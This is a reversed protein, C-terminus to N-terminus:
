GPETVGFPNLPARNRPPTVAVEVPVSGGNLVVKRDLVTEPGAFVVLNHEVAQVTSIVRTPGIASVSAVGDPVVGYAFLDGTTSSWLGTRELQQTRACSVGEDAKDEGVEGVVCAGVTGPVFWVTLGADTPLLRAAGTLLGYRSVLRQSVLASPIPSAAFRLV